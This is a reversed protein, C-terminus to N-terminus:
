VITKLFRNQPSDSSLPECALWLKKQLHKPPAETTAIIYQVAENEPLTDSGAILTFLRRYIHVSLDAERSTM